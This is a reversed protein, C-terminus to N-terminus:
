VEKPSFQETHSQSQSKKFLYAEWHLYVSFLANGPTTKIYSQLKTPNQWSQVSQGRRLTLCKTCSPPNSLQLNKKIFKTFLTKTPAPCSVAGVWGAPFTRKLRLVFVEVNPFVHVAAYKYFFFFLFFLNFYGRMCYTWNLRRETTSSQNGRSCQWSKFFNLFTRSVLTSASQISVSPHEATIPRWLNLRGFQLSLAVTKLLDCSQIHIM